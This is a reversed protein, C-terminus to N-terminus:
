QFSFKPAFWGVSWLTGHIFALLVSQKEVFCVQVWVLLPLAYEITQTHQLAPIVKSLRSLFLAMSFSWFYEHRVFAGCLFWIIMEAGAKEVKEKESKTENRANLSSTESDLVQLLHAAREGLKRVAVTPESETRMTEALYNWCVLAFGPM